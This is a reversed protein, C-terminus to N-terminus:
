QKALQENIERATAVLAPVFKSRLDKMSVRGAPTGINLAAVARGRRDRLAVAVSRLSDELERDNIAYGVRRVEALERRLAAPDTTTRETHRELTTASLYRDLEERSLEALLVRGMSTACAPLRSGLGLSISMIHRTPVRAVYVIDPGDLVAASVSEDVRESLAEMYPQAIEPLKLSSIYAYGLDLVKPTLEFLKGDTRMYGLAAFTHLLRRATARTLGTQRAVEAVTLMPARASFARLVLLGREVSQVLEDKGAMALSGDSTSM